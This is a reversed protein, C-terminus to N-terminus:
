GVLFKQEDSKEGRTAALAAASEFPQADLVASEYKILRRVADGFGDRIGAFNEAVTGCAERTFDGLEVLLKETSLKGFDGRGEFLAGGATFNGQDDTRGVSCFRTRVGVGRLRERGADLFEHVLSLEVAFFGKLEGCFFVAEGAAGGIRLDDVHLCIALLCSRFRHRAPKSRKQRSASPKWPEEDM